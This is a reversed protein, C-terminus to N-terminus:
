ISMHTHLVAQQGTGADSRLSVPHVLEGGEDEGADRFVVVEGVLCEVVWSGTADKARVGSVAVRGIGAPVDVDGSVLQQQIRQGAVVHVLARFLDDRVADCFLAKDGVNLADVPVVFRCPLLVVHAGDELQQSQGPAVM